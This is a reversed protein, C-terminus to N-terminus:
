YWRLSKRTIISRKPPNYKPSSTSHVQALRTVTYDGRKHSKVCICWNQIGLVLPQVPWLLFPPKRGILLRTCGGRRTSEAFMPSLLSAAVNPVVSFFRTLYCLQFYVFREEEEKPCRHGGDRSVISRQRDFRRRPIKCFPIPRSTPSSPLVVRGDDHHDM